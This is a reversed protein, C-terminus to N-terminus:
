TGGDSQLISTFLALGYGSNQVSYRSFHWGSGPAAAGRRAPHAAARPVAARHRASRVQEGGFVGGGPHETRYWEECSVDIKCVFCPQPWTRYRKERSANNTRVFCPWGINATITRTVRIQCGPSGPTVVRATLVRNLHHCGNIHDM